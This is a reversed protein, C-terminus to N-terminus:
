NASVGVAFCAGTSGCQFKKRVFRARRPFESLEMRGKEVLVAAPAHPSGRNEQVVSKLVPFVMETRSPAPAAAAVGGVWLLDRIVKPVIQRTPHTGSDADAM